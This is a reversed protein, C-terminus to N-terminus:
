PLPFCHPTFVSWVRNRSNFGDRRVWAERARRSGRSHYGPTEGQCFRESTTAVTPCLVNRQGKGGEMSTLRSAKHM